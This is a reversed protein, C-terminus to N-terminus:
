NMKDPLLICSVANNKRPASLHGSIVLADQSKCNIFPLAVSQGM